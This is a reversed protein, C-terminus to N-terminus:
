MTIIKKIIKKIFRKPVYIIKEVLKCFIILISYKNKLFLLSVIKLIKDINKNKIYLTELFINDNKIKTYIKKKELISINKQISVFYVCNMMDIFHCNLFKNCLNLDDIKIIEDYLFKNVYIIDDIKEKKFTHTISTQNERYNYLIDNVLYIKTINELFIMTLLLDDGNNISKLNELLNFNIKDKKIIKIALSNFRSDELIKKYLEKKPIFGEQVYKPIKKYVKGNKLVNQYRFIIMESQYEDINKKMKELLNESIYDDADVSYIYEGRALKVGNIRAKTAKQNEQHIVKIRKDREKLKECIDLSSDTSGDDVLILEFDKFSQKLISNVSEELYKEANYVPIVISFLVKEM